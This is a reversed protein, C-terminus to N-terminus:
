LCAAMRPLIVARRLTLPQAVRLPRRVAAAAARAATPPAEGRPVARRLLPRRAERADAEAQPTQAASAAAAATAAARSQRRVAAAARAEKAAEDLQRRAVGPKPPAPLAAAHYMRELTREKAGPATAATAVDAAAAALAKAWAKGALEKSLGAGTFAEELIRRTRVSPPARPGRQAAMGRVATAAALLDSAEGYARIVHHWARENPAVRASRMRRLTAAARPADGARAWAAIVSTWSVVGPAVGAAAMEALVAEAEEPQNATRYATILTSWTVEDPQLKYFAMRSMLGRVREPQGADAYGAAVSTFSIANPSIGLADMDWSGSGAMERLVGDAAEPKGAACFAKILMNFIATSPAVSRWRMTDLLRRVSKVDGNAAYANMVVGSILREDAYAERQSSCPSYHAGPAIRLAGYTLASPPLSGGRRSVLELNLVDNHMKQLVAEADELRGAAVAGRM